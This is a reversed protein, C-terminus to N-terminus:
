LLDGTEYYRKWSHPVCKTKGHYVVALRKEILSQNLHVGNCYVDALLRGYKDMSVRELTVIQGDACSQITNNQGVFRYLIRNDDKLNNPNSKQVIWVMSGFQFLTCRQITIWMGQLRLQIEMTYTWWVVEVCRLFTNPYRQIFRNQYPVAM